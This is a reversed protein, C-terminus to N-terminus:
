QRLIKVWSENFCLSELIEDKKLVPPAKVTFKACNEPVSSHITFQSGHPQWTFCINGSKNDMGILNGNPNVKWTYDSTRYRRTDEEFLCYSLMDYSRILVSTRAQSYNDNAINVRENWIQLVATGTKQIDSHPDTIGYSYDPSCRGSILRVSKCSFPDKQKVTKASWCLKDKSVDAIGLPADLHEGGVAEALADGWDNGSIDKRGIYLLYVFYGGIKVLIDDPFENLPYPEHSGLRAADRLRPKKM